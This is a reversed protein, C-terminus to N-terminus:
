NKLVGRVKGDNQNGFYILIAIIKKRREREESGNRSDDGSEIM